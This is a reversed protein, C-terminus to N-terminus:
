EARVVRRRAARRDSPARRHRRVRGRRADSTEHLGGASAADALAALVDIAAVARATDLIRPSEVAIAARLEEFIAVERAAIRDDAGVVKDEYGEPRAHRLARRRRDDAQPPLRGARQALNSKSIEIYYGFVRNYRIKLSAIGTREREAEEMAAIAAKGGRSIARVEDLEADVGDRIVGGDRAQLPPEDVLTRDISARIDALEDIEAM